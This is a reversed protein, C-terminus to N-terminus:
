SSVYFSGTAVDLFFQAKIEALPAAGFGMLCM